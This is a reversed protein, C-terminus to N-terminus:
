RTLALVQAAARVRTLRYDNRMLRRLTPFDKSVVFEGLEHGALERVAPNQDSALSELVLRAAEPEHPALLGAAAARVEPEEAETLQHVSALWSADPRSSMAQAAVLRTESSADLLMAQLMPLGSDDDLRLLAEAAKIQVHPAKDGLMPKVYAVVDRDGFRGLAEVAAGRVEMRSDKLREIVPAVALKSGSAGLANLIAVQNGGKNLEGILANVAAEDGQSALARAEAGTSRTGSKALERASATDGDDALSRLADLRATPDQRQAVSERLMADAIRRLLAPEEVTRQGLWRDYQDLASVAGGSAVAAEIALTLAAGSRPHAALAHAAREAAQAAQGEALLAWGNTLETAEEVSVAGPLRAAAQRRPQQRPSQQASATSVLTVAVLVLASCRTLDIDM